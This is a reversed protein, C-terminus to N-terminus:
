YDVLLIKKITTTSISIGKTIQIDNKINTLNMTNNEYNDKYQNNIYDIYQSYKKKNPENLINEYKLVSEGKLTKEYGYIKLKNSHVDNHHKECLVVLNSKNNATIPENNVLSNINTNNYEESLYYTFISIQKAEAYIVIILMYMKIIAQNNPNLISTNVNILDNRISNATKIFDNDDLLFNAIEIGYINEGIGDQLKRGYIIEKLIEDYKIDLHMFKINNLKIISDISHLKHLHTALIFNVNNKSFRQIASAVIATASLDETGKCVEDGLVLSNSDAHKLISRLENM